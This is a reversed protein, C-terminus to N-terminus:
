DQDTISYVPIKHLFQKLEKEPREEQVSWIAQALTNGGGWFLIWLPRDDNEDAQQIIHDSGPSNNDKGIESMGRKRSGFMTRKRLYDPSPWYGIKQQSEDEQFGYQDSRKSLNPLDKEYADIADYILNIFDDRTEELSWGTTYVLGEIELMDSHVLLRVLSESDDTEWTSVDTLIMVRPKLPASSTKVQGFLSVPILVFLLSKALKKM